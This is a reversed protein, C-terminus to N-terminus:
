LGLLQLARAPDRGAWRRGRAINDEGALRLAGIALNRLSAMAHPSSRTRIQSGDEGMTVDRVWHLRNEIEWHGRVLKMLRAPDAREPLLSTVGYATEKSVPTGDLTFIERRIRFVQGVHPFPSPADPGALYENLASSAQLGRRELRGHGKSM